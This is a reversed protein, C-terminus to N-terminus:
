VGTKVLSRVSLLSDIYRQQMFRIFPSHWTSPCIEYEPCHALNIISSRGLLIEFSQGPLYFAQISFCKIFLKIVKSLYKQSVYLFNYIQLNLPLCQIDGFLFQIKWKQPKVKPFQVYMCYICVCLCVCTIYLTDWFHM